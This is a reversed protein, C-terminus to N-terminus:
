KEGASISRFLLAIGTGDCRLCRRYSTLAAPDAGEGHCRPCVDVRMTPRTPATEDDDFLSDTM